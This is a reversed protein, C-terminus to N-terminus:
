AYISLGNILPKYRLGEYNQFPYVEKKGEIRNRPGSTREREDNSNRSDRLGVTLSGINIGDRQLMSIINFLNREIVEKSPLEFVSIYGKIVGKQSNLAIELRGLGEPEVSVRLTQIDKEYYSSLKEIKKIRTDLDTGLQTIAKIDGKSGHFEISGSHLFDLIQDKETLTFRREKFFSNGSSMKMLPETLTLDQVRSKFFGAVTDAAPDLDRTVIEYLGSSVKTLPEYFGHIMINESTRADNSLGSLPQRNFSSIDSKKSLLNSTGSHLSGTQFANLNETSQFGASNSECFKLPFMIVQLEKDKDKLEPLYGNNPFFIEPAIKVEVCSTEAPRVPEGFFNIKKFDPKDEDKSESSLEASETFPCTYQLLDPKENDRLIEAECFLLKYFSAPMNRTMENIRQVVEAHQFVMM